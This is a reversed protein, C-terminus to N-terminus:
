LGRDAQGIHASQPRPKPGSVVMLAQDLNAAPPRLLENKRPLINVVTNDEVEARDGVLPTIGKKRFVGKAKCELLGDATEVYYFGSIAKMILGKQIM